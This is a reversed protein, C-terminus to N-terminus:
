RDSVWTVSAPSGSVVARVVDLATAFEVTDRDPYEDVQGNDLVYGGSVGAGTPDGLHQGADGEHDILVVMARAGNSVFMLARGRSSSMTTMPQRSLVREVDAQQLVTGDDACWVEDM